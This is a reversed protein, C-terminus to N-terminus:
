KTNITKGNDNIPVSFTIYKETNEGLYEFSGEFEEALKKLTSHYDYTFGNHTIVTIEKPIKYRLNCINRARYKGTYHCHDKVKHYKENNVDTNFGEKCIHCAKAKTHMKQEKKTSPIVEKKEYNIIRIVHKKFDKIFKKLCDKGRNFDSKDVKAGFTNCTFLSYGSATHKNTKATSSKEPDNHCTSIKEPSCEFDVYIVFPAKVSNEGHSYKLIKNDENPMELCFYDHNECVKEHKKLKDKSTYAHFCNLCYFDEEHKSTIGILLESM